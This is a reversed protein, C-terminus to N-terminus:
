TFAGQVPHTDASIVRWTVVYAGNALHPHVAVSVVDASPKTISGTDVRSGQTNYVRISGPDVSVQEDYRLSVTQPPTTLVAGEGPTTQLLVAPAFAPTPLLVVFGAPFAALAAGRWLVRPSRRM